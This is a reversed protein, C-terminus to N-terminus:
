FFDCSTASAMLLRSANTMQKGYRKDQLASGRAPEPHGPLYQSCLGWGSSHGEGKTSMTETPKLMLQGNLLPTALPLGPYFGHGRCGRPGMTGLARGLARRRQRRHATM